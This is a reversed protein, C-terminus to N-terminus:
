QGEMQGNGWSVQYHGRAMQGPVLFKDPGGLLLQHLPHSRVEVRLGCLQGDPGDSQRQPHMMPAEPIRQHLIPETM